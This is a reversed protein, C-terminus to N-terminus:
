KKSKPRRRSGFLRGFISSPTPYEVKPLGELSLWDGSMREQWWQQRGKQASDLRAQLAKRDGNEIDSIYARIGTVADELVRVTNEPNSLAAECLSGADDLIATLKTSQAYARGAIKRGDKWGPKNITNNVMLAALFQPLIHTAAMLGDIEAPDVFLPNAGILRTLDGALQIADPHTSHPSAIAVLGKDFLDAHAADQGRKVEDLYDPNIVPILGVYYRKAPLLEQAWAFASQKIPATDLVVCGEPLHPAIIELTDYVQNSPVSLLVVKASEVASPINVAVRDVAGINEAQRATVIDLDHGVRIIEDKHESLALGISTGIQGLGIITIQISM